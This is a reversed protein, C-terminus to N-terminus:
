PLSPGDDSMVAEAVDQDYRNGVRPRTLEDIRQLALKRLEAADSAIRSERASTANPIRRDLAEVLDRLMGLTDISPQVLDPTHDKM